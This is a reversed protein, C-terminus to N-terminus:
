PFVDGRDLRGVIPCNSQGGDLFEARLTWDVWLYEFELLVNGSELDRSIM